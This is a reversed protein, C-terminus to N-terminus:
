NSPHDTFPIKFVAEMAMFVEDWYARDNKYPNDKSHDVRRKENIAGLFMETALRLRIQLVTTPLYHCLNILRQQIDAYAPQPVTTHSFPHHQIDMRMLQANFLAFSKQASESMEEIIPLFMARLLSAIPVHNEQDKARNLRTMRDEDLKPLRMDYVAQLLGEKSGFHHQVASSNAQGAETVVQRLSVGEISQEGFLREAAEMLKIAGKPYPTTLANEANSM